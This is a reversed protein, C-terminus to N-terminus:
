VEVPTEERTGVAASVPRWRRVAAPIGVAVGGPPVDDLVVANAGVRAGDGVTVRGLVKAGAGLIVGDGVTPVGSQMDRLGVTVQQFIVADAGIRAAGHIMIGNAHPIRVGPGITCRAPLYSGAAIRVVLLDLTRYLIWLGQRAVPLRCRYVIWHGFRYVSVAARSLAGSPYM